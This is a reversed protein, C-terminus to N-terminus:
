KEYQYCRYTMYCKNEKCFYYNGFHGKRIEKKHAVLKCGECRKQSIFYFLKSIYFLILSIILWTFSKIIHFVDKFFDIYDKIYIM